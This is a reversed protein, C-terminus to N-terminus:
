ATKKTYVKRSKQAYIQDPNARYHAELESLKEGSQKLLADYVWDSIQFYGESRTLERIAARTAEDGKVPINTTNQAMFGGLEKSACTHM